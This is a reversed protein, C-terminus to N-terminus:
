CLMVKDSPTSENSTIVQEVLQYFELCSSLQQRRHELRRCFKRYTEELARKREKIGIGEYHGEQVMSSAEELLNEM